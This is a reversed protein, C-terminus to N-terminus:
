AKIFEVLYFDRIINAGNAIVKGQKYTDMTYTKVPNEQKDLDASLEFKHFKIDNTFPLLFREITKLSFMNLGSEWIQSGTYNNRFRVIVDIDDATFGGFIYGRGGTNLHNLMGQLPKSIDDFISLVGAMLAIDFKDNLDFGAADGKIFNVNQLLEESKAMDILQQAYELGVMKIDISQKKLFYFFEGKSCGIDLISSAKDLAPKMKEYLFAFRDYGMYKEYSGSTYTEISKNINNNLM